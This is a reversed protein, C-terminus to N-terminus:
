PAFEARVPLGAPLEVADADTLEVECLYSLRAADEGTLAYYPTFSSESRIMRVRGNWARVRGEVYVKAARGVRVDQRIPEPVYVRAFPRPGVLMVALPSGVPAQDGLKYPLSDIVGDRPAVVDLKAFTTQQVAAQAQAAALAARGQAIDERRNGRELELLGAEAARVQALANGAAARARDVDAAAILRRQGLPRVREFYASADRQQAQAAALNARAQEIAERRPGAELEALAQASQQAQAQAAQLQSRTRDPELQLVRAGAKVRQGERVDIRVVKEAAPAPLTIRDWELTGLAQPPPRACGALALAALACLGASRLAARSGPSALTEARRPARAAAPPAVADQLAAAALARSRLPILAALATAAASPATRIQANRADRQASM